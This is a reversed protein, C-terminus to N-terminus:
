FVYIWLNIDHVLIVCIYTHNTHRASSANGVGTHLIDEFVEDLIIASGFDNKSSGRAVRVSFEGTGLETGSCEHLHVVSSFGAEGPGM